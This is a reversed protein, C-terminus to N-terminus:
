AALHSASDAVDSVLNEFGTATDDIFKAYEEIVEGINKLLVQYGEIKEVYVRSDASDWGNKMEEVARTLNTVELDYDSKNDMLTKYMSRLAEPNAQFNFKPM